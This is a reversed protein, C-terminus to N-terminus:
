SNEIKKEISSKLGYTMRRIEDILLILEDYSNTQIYGVRKSLIIQTKIESISGMANGLFQRFEKYNNRGCGESINSSISIASRRMQSILGYKEEKPFDRTIKYIIEAFDLSRQWVLLDEFGKHSAESFGPFDVIIKNEYSM